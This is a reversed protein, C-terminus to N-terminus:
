DWSQVAKMVQSLVILNRVCETRLRGDEAEIEETQPAKKKAGVPPANRSPTGVKKMKLLPPSTPQPDVIIIADTMVLSTM